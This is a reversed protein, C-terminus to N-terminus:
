TMLGPQRTLQLSTVVLIHSYSHWHSFDFGIQDALVIHWHHSNFINSALSVLDSKSNWVYSLYEFYDFPFRETLSVTKINSWFLLLSFWNQYWYTIQKPKIFITKLISKQNKISLALSVSLVRSFNLKSKQNKVRYPDAQITLSNIMNSATSALDLNQIEFM